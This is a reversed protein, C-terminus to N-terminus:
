TRELYVVDFLAPRSELDFLESAEWLQGALVGDSGFYKEVYGSISWFPWFGHVLDGIRILLSFSSPRNDGRREQVFLM